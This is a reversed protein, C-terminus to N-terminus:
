WIVLMSIKMCGTMRLAEGESMPRIRPITLRAVVIYEEWADMLSGGDAASPDFTARGEVALRDLRFVAEAGLRLTWPLDDDSLGRTYM